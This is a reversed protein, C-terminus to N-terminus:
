KLAMALDLLVQKPNRSLVVASSVLIGQAGLEKAKKVDEKTHIGAGCLIPIDKIYHTLATIIGPRAESVSLTGAILEPPEIAIMTPRTQYLKFAENPDKACLITELEMEQMKKLTQQATLFDVPRESHNLLSGDAGAEQLADPVIAGTNRGEEANDVHQALVPIGVAERVNRLDLAQVAVAIEVGTKKAVEECQKAMSVANPGTAQPYTKFNVIIIPVKM